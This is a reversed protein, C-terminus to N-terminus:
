CARSLVFVHESYVYIQWAGVGGKRWWWSTAWSVSQVNFIDGTNLYGISPM